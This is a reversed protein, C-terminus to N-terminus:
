FSDTPHADVQYAPALAEVIGVGLQRQACLGM